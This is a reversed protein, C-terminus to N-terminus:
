CNESFVIEKARATLMEAYQMGLKDGIVTMAGSLNPIRETLNHCDSGLLQIKKQQLMKLGKRLTKRQLFVSANSQILIGDRQLFSLIKRNKRSGIYREVHAIVPTINQEAMLKNMDMIFASDWVGKLTEVLLCRGNGLCLKEVDDIQSLGVGCYLVEAGLFLEPVDLDKTAEMLDRYASDRNKLFQEVSNRRMDFHPTAVVATVGEKRMRTLMEVSEEVSASGDDVKPLIHAHIDIM